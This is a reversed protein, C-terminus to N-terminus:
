QGISGEHQGQADLIVERTVGRITLDCLVRLRDGATKEVRTGRFKMELQNAVDLLHASDLHTDRDAVDTDITSLPM